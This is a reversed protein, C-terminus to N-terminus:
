NDTSSAREEGSLFSAAMFATTQVGLTPPKEVAHSTM